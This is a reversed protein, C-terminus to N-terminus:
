FLVKQIHLTFLLGIGMGSSHLKKAPVMIAHMSLDQRLQQGTALLRSYDSKGPMEINKIADLSLYIKFTCNM